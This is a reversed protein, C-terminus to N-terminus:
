NKEIKNWYKEPHLIEEYSPARVGVILQIGRKIGYYDLFSKVYEASYKYLIDYKNQKDMIEQITEPTYNKGSICEGIKIAVYMCIGEEIFKSGFSNRPIMSFNNYDSSVYMSDIRMQMIIQNFYFHTLEHFVVGKVFNNSEYITRKKYKSLMSTEYAIYKEENSIIIESSEKESIYFGLADDNDQYQSLDDTTMYVDYLSDSVLKQYESIFNNTNQKVYIDVGKSSPIGEKTLLYVNQAILIYNSLFILIFLIRKIM